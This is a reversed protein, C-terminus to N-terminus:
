WPISAISPNRYCHRSKCLFLGIGEHNIGQGMLCLVGHGIPLMESFCLVSIKKAAAKLELFKIM